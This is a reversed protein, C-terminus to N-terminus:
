ANYIPSRESELFKAKFDDLRASLENAFSLLRSSATVVENVKTNVFNLEECGACPKSCTDTITIRGNSSEVSICDGGEIKLDTVSIGNISGITSGSGGGCDCPENYGSNSDVDIKIANLGEVYSLRVNTGAILAVDGFLSRASYVNTSSTARIGSVCRVSPRMCRAELTTQSRDFTFVGDPYESSFKGLDGFVIAGRAGQYDGSGVFDVVHNVEVTTESTVSGVIKSEFGISSYASVVVTVVNNALTVSSIYLREQSVTYPMSVIADVLFCNPLAYAPDMLGGSSDNPIRRSNEQFPYARLSNENLWEAQVTSPM